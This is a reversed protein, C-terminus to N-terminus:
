ENIDINDTIDKVMFKLRPKIDMKLITQLPILINDKFGSEFNKQLKKYCGKILSCLLEISSNDNEIESYLSNFHEIITTPNYIQVLYLESIFCYLLKLNEKNEDLILKNLKETCKSKLMNLSFPSRYTITKCIEAYLSQFSPQLISCKIINDILFQSLEDTQLLEKIQINIVNNNTKSIKNLLMLIKKKNECQINSLNKFKLGMIISIRKIEAEDFILNHKNEIFIDYEYKITM